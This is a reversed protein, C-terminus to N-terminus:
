KMTEYFNSSSKDEYISEDDNKQVLEFYQRHSTFLNKVNILDLIKNVNLYFNSNLNNM